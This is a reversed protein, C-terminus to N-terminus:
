VFVCVQLIVEFQQRRIVTKLRDIVKEGRKQAQSRRSIMILENQQEHLLLLFFACVCM